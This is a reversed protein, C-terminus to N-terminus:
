LRRRSTRVRDRELPAQQMGRLGGFTGPAAGMGATDCGFAILTVTVGGDPSDTM